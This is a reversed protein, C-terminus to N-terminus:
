LKCFPKLSVTVADTPKLGQLQISANTIEQLIGEGVLSCCKTYLDLCQGDTLIPGEVM